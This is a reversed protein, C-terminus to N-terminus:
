NMSLRRLGKALHRALRTDSGDVAAGEEIMQAVEAAMEAADAYSEIPWECMARRLIGLAEVAEEPWGQDPDFDFNAKVM